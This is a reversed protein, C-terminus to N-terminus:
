SGGGLTAPHERHHPPLGAENWSECHVRLLAKSYPLGNGRKNVTKVSNGPEPWCQKQTGLTSLVLAESVHGKFIRRCNGTSTVGM